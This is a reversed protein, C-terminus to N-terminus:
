RAYRVYGGICQMQGGPNQQMVRIAEGVDHSTPILMIRVQEETVEVSRKQDKADRWVYEYKM